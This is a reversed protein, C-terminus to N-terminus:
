SVAPPARSRPRAVGLAPVVSTKVLTAAVGAETSTLLWAHDDPGPLAISHCLVCVECYRAMEPHETAHDGICLDAYSGDPLQLTVNQVIAAVTEPPKHAFALLVVALACIMRLMVTAMRATRKAM